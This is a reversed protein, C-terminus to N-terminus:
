GSYDTGTWDMGIVTSGTTSDTGSQDLIADTLDTPKFDAPVQVRGDTAYSLADQFTTFCTPTPSSSSSPSDGAAAQIVCYQIPLSADDGGTARALPVGGILLGALMLLAFSTIIWSRKM